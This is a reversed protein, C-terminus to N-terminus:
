SMSNKVAENLQDYYIKQFQLGFHKGDRKTYFVPEAEPNNDWFLVALDKIHKKEDFLHICSIIERSVCDPNEETYPVKDNFESIIYIQFGKKEFHRIVVKGDIYKQHIISIPTLVKDPNSIDIAYFAYALDNLRQFKGNDYYVLDFGGGWGDLLHEATLREKMLFAICAQLIRQRCFKSTVECDDLYSFSSLLQTNWDTAGSGCSLVTLDPRSQDLLWNGTRLVLVQDGEDDHEGLMYVVSCETAYELTSILENLTELGALRHLFFDQIDSILNEIVSVAGSFGICLIEQIIITKVNFDVVPTLRVTKENTSPLLISNSTGQQSIARDSIIIPHGHDNIASILTM